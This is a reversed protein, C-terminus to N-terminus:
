RNQTNWRKTATCTIDAVQTGCQLRFEGQELVWKGDAGVFALESAPLTFTVTETQGPKLDIKKFARLRRGDPM